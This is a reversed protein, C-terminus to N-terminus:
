GRAQLIADCVERVAGRGGVAATVWDAAARVAPVANAVACGIGAVDFAPLDALDDGVMVTREPSVGMTACLRLFGARKDGCRGEYHVIGLERHRAEAIATPRGSLVAVQVGARCLLVVGMGDAAWFTLGAPGDASYAISGDTLVGDCDLIVAQVNRLAAPVM